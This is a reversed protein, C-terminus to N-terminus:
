LKKFCIYRQSENEYKFYIPILFIWFLYLYFLLLNLLYSLLQIYKKKFEVNLQFRM